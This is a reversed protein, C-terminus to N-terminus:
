KAMDVMPENIYGFEAAERPADEVAHLYTFIVLVGALVMLAIVGLALLTSTFRGRGPISVRSASRFPSPAHPVSESRSAM